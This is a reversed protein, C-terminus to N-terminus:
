DHAAFATLPDRPATLHSNIRRDVLHDIMM